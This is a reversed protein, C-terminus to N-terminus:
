ENFSVDAGTYESYKQIFKSQSRTRTTSCNNKTLTIFHKTSSRTSMRKSNINYTHSKSQHMNPTQISCRVNKIRPSHRVHSSSCSDYLTSHSPTSMSMRSSITKSRTKITM